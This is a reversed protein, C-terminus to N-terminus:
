CCRILDGGMCECCCDACWLAQCVECCTNGADPQQSYTRETATQEPRQSKQEFPRSGDIKKKLNELSRQYKANTPDLQLALELQKKCESYWSKEYFIIAQYYHWEAGRGSMDDLITQARSFDKDRLADKVTEFDSDSGMEITARNHCYEMASQYANDLEELKRAAEAGDEGEYFVRDSYYARKEKYADLIESQTSDRSIGLIVFPDNSM